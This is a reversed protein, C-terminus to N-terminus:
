INVEDVQLMKHVMNIDNDDLVILERHILDIMEELEKKTDFVFHVLAFTQSFSGNQVIETGVKKAVPIVIVDNNEQLSNLGKIEKIKGANLHVPYVAYYKKRHLNASILSTHGAIKSEGTLAYYMDSAVQNIGYFYDVPYVSVTGGYRYGVENFYYEDGDHFVEIWVSGEKIGISAMTKEIKEEFRERFEKTFKSELILLGAVYSGERAYQVPYKDELGSFYMKGNSFTLFVVIGKNKVFKEVIVSGSDSNDKAKNYGIVLEDNNHCISFGSSGCGDAPKTIVPYVEKPLEICNEEITYRPVVPLGNEICLQKFNAKNQLYEWQEKKCYCPLGLENLYQSAASIVAESGGMYVGDIHNEKILRKMKEANTSDVNYYEQSIDFIASTTDNGTAVLQVGNEKAFASIADKWLSGGLLLLKKGELNIESM